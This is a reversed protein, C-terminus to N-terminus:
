KKLKRGLSREVSEIKGSLRGSVGVRDDIKVHTSVRDTRDRMIMHCRRILDFIEEPEGEVITGMATLRYDLGSRDIEDLVAAVDEALSGPKGLPSVTFEALM